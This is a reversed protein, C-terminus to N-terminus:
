RCAVAATERARATREVHAGAFSSLYIFRPAATRSRVRVCVFARARTRTAVVNPRSRPARTAGRSSREGTRAVRRARIPQATRTCAHMCLHLARGRRGRGGYTCM